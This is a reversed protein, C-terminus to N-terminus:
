SHDSMLEWSVFCLQPPKLNDASSLSIMGFSFWCFTRGEKGGVKEEELQREYVKHPERAQSSNFTLLSNLNIERVWIGGRTVKKLCLAENHRRVPKWCWRLSLYCDPHEWPSHLYKSWHVLFSVRWTHQNGWKEREENVKKTSSELIKIILPSRSLNGGTQARLERSSFQKLCLHAYVNLKKEM